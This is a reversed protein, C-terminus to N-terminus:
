GSMSMRVDWAVGCRSSEVFVSSSSRSRQSAIRWPRTRGDNATVPPMASGFSPMLAMRAPASATCITRGQKPMTRLVRLRQHLSELSPHFPVLERTEVLHAPLGAQLVRRIAGREFARVVYLGKM